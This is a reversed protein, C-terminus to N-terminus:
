SSPSRRRAWPLPVSWGSEGRRCRRVYLGDEALRAVFERVQELSWGPVLLYDVSSRVYGYIRHDLSDSCLYDVSSRVYGYIRHDLSDSCGYPPLLSLQMQLAGDSVVGYIPEFSWRAAGEVERGTLRSFVEEALQRDESIIAARAFGHKAEEWRTVHVAYKRRRREEIEETLRAIQRKVQKVLNKTGKHKPIMSYFKRLEELKQEPTAAAVVRRWQAKAAEPLNTVM